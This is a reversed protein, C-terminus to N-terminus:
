FNGMLGWSGGKAVKNYYVRKLFVLGKELKKHETILKKIWKKAKETM